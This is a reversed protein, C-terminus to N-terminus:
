VGYRFCAGPSSASGPEHAGNWCGISSEIELTFQFVLEAGAGSEVGDLADQEAGVGGIVLDQGQPDHLGFVLLLDLGDELRCGTVAHGRRRLPAPVPRAPAAM